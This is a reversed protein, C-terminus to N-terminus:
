RLTVIPQKKRYAFMLSVCSLKVGFYPLSTLTLIEHGIRNDKLLWCVLLLTLVSSSVLQVSGSPEWAGSQPSLLFLEM